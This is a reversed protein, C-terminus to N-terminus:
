LNNDKRSSCALTFPFVKEAGAKRLLYGCVTITWRSDVIDDILLYNGTLEMKNKISFSDLANKCQFQSNEMDKQPKATTKEIIEAFSIHLREALRLSFDKVINSRLSPVCTMYKINNDQVYAALIETCKELLEDCFRDGNYKNNQVIKGYGQHGYRSLCIGEENILDIKKRDCWQKRPEIKIIYENLHKQAKILYEESINSSMIEKGLCNSCIGCDTETKDDLCNVVFRSLCKTTKMLEIMQDREAYRQSKIENYHEENYSFQNASAFYKVRGSVKEKYIFSENELFALTKELRSNSLNVVSLLDNKGIGNNGTIQNIISQSEAKSPFATEIFYNHIDLDEEGCMLFTYAKPINRGARGIQQYYSVINAPSQYHIVFAINSKDYGMGLKITAVIVKIKDNMFLLETESNKEPEIGSHYSRASIDNKILFGALEDCDDQTLCYIIGSGELKNINELIWAYRSAKDKMRLIQISLNDRMLPGRSVYVDGGFQQKLDNLVRDNATATTALVPVNSMMGSILKNIKCYELRFDHGWDSICHAEDVVFLGIKTKLLTEQVDGKFLTEPTTLVMDIKGDKLKELIDAREDRDVMSNLVCCELGAKRASQIQNEMLSLLPSVILTTGKGEDRLLKTCIFYVMSKGWGTRQVVLTRRNTLTAEIAEYQGDRFDADESVFMHLVDMAKRKINEM